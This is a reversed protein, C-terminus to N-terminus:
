CTASARYLLPPDLAEMVTTTSPGADLDMSRGLAQALGGSLGWGLALPACAGSIRAPSSAPRKPETEGQLIQRSNCVQSGHGQDESSHRAHPAKRKTLVNSSSICSARSPPCMDKRKRTAGASGQRLLCQGGQPASPGSNQPAAEAQSLEADPWASHQQSSAQEKRLGAKAGQSHLAQSGSSHSRQLAAPKCTDGQRGDPLGASATAVPRGGQQEVGFAPGAEDASEDDSSSWSISAKERAAVLRQLFCPDHQSAGKGAAPAPRPGKSSPVAQPVAAASGQARSTESGAAATCGPQSPEPRM